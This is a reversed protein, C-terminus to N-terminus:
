EKKRQSKPPAAAEKEPERQVQNKSLVLVHQVEREMRCVYSRESEGRRRRFRPM